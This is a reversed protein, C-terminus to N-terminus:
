IAHILQQVDRQILLAQLAQETAVFKIVICDHYPIGGPQFDLVATSPQTCAKDHGTSLATTLSCGDANIFAVNFHHLESSNARTCAISMPGEFLELSCPSREPSEVQVPVADGFM